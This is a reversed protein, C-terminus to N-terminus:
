KNMEYLSKQHEETKTWCDLERLLLCFEKHLPHQLKGHWFSRLSLQRQNPYQPKHMHASPRRSTLPKKERLRQFTAQLAQDHAARTKGFVLIDDSLNM